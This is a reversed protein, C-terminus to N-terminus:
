AYKQIRIDDVWVGTPVPNTPNSFDSRFVFRIRVSDSGVCAALSMTANVWTRTGGSVSRSTWNGDNRCSYEWSFSDYHRETDLWHSFLVRANRAGTLNIPGYAMWTDTYNGYSTWDNPHASYYGTRAKTPTDDWSTSGSGPATGVASGNYDLVSWNGSPFISEFGQNVMTRWRPAAAAEAQQRADASGPLTALLGVLALMSLAMTIRRHRM